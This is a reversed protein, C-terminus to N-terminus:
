KFFDWLTTGPAYKQRYKRNWVYQGSDARNKARMEAGSMGPVDVSTENGQNDTGFDLTYPKTPDINLEGSEYLEPSYPGVFGSTSEPNNEPGLVPGLNQNNDPEGFLLGFSGYTSQDQNQPGYVQNDNVPGLNNDADVTNNVNNTGYGYADKGQLMRKQNIYNRYAKETEPGFIGDAKVGIANQIAMVQDKNSFDINGTDITGSSMGTIPNNVNIGTDGTDISSYPRRMFSNAGPMGPNFVGALGIFPLFEMINIITDIM